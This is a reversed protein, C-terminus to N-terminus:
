IKVKGDGGSSALRLNNTRDIDISACSGQHSSISEITSISLNKSGERIDKAAISGNELAFFLLENQSDIKNIQNQNDPSQLSIKRVAREHLENFLLATPQNALGIVFQNCSQDRIWCSVTPTMKDLNYSTSSNSASFSLEGSLYDETIGWSNVSGDACCSIFKTGKPDSRVNWVM